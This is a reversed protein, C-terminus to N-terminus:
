TLVGLTCNWTAARDLITLSLYFHSFIKFHIRFHGLHGDVLRDLSVYQLHEAQGGLVLEGFDFIGHGACHPDVDEHFLAVQEFRAFDRVTKVQLDVFLALNDAAIRDLRLILLNLPSYDPPQGWRGAPFESDRGWFQADVRDM